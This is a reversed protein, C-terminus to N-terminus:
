IDNSKNDEKKNGASFIFDGLLKELNQPAQTYEIKGGPMLYEEAGGPELSLYKGGLMSESSIIAATDEPVRVSPDISMHVEALYTLENLIVKTVTGIKVGSIQVDDGIALGGIGSFDAILEYGKVSQVNSTKYSFVLFYAAVVIVIAGLVTEIANNKM